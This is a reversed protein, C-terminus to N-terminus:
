YYIEVNNRGTLPTEPCVEIKRDKFTESLTVDNGTAEANWLMFGGVSKEIVTKYKERISKDRIESYCYNSVLFFDEPLNCEFSLFNCHLGHAKLYKDQLLMVAPLDFIYYNCDSMSKLYLCLGGYGGGIEVINKTQFKDFHEKILLSHHLYRANSPSAYGIDEGLYEKITKGYLDNKEFLQVLESFTKADVKKRSLELYELAQDRDTHELIGRYVPDGKFYWFEAPLNLQQQVVSTYPGYM